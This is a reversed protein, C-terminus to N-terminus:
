SIPRKFNDSRNKLKSKIGDNKYRIHLSMIAQSRFERVKLEVM